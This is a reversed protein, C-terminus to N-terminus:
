TERYRSTTVVLRAGAASLMHGIRGAPYTVDFPLYAGGAKHIGLLAVVLECSPELLVGVPEEKTLGAALLTHALRNAEEELERYTLVREPDRVAVTDAHRAAAQEFQRIAPPGPDEAPPGVFAPGAVPELTIAGVPRAPDDLMARLVRLLYGYWREVTETDFLDARYTLMGRYGGDPTTVLGLNLD